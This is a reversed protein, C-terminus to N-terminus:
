PIVLGCSAMGGIGAVNPDDCWIEAQGTLLFQKWQDVTCISGLNEESYTFKGSENVNYLMHMGAGWSYNSDRPSVQVENGDKHVCFFLYNSGENNPSSDNLKHTTGGYQSSKTLSWDKHRDGYTGNTPTRTVTLFPYPSTGSPFPYSYLKIECAVGDLLIGSLAIFFLQYGPMVFSNRSVINKYSTVWPIPAQSLDNGVMGSATAALAVPRQRDPWFEFGQFFFVNTSPQGSNAVFLSQAYYCHTIFNMSEVTMTYMDAVDQFLLSSLSVTGTFNLNFNTSNAQSVLVTADKAIWGGNEWVLLQGETGTPLDLTQSSVVWKQTSSDWTLIKGTDSQNSSAKAVDAEVKKGVGWASGTWQLVQDTAGSTPLQAQKQSSSAVWKTGDWELVRGIETAKDVDAEIKKGVGWASGMWQLVQDTAGNTPLEAQKQSSSAVWKTGNWELVRGVETAKDVDAEVKKGGGWASGTWQLVQDTAGNTPLEAQQQSSVVWKETNSDWTLIKGTDSQNSTAKAVDAEVKKGVGWASGTWQLVQDAAGNTPLQAQKQSSSPVWKTGNWELVKGNDAQNAKAVDAEVKKGVAWAWGTWQLVQDATGNTPLQAQKQSSSAVWKTGNWELVKGNDAQGTTAKAVDAEIKKGVGWASGTWQLVQDTAGNTPLQAQKQSSSAVWKTGNWELVKGNDAQNATAKAVDAELKKGVVLSPSTGSVKLSLVKDDHTSDPYTSSDLTPFQNLVGAVTKTGFQEIESGVGMSGLMDTMSRLPQTLSFSIPDGVADMKTLLSAGTGGAASDVGLETEILALKSEINTIDNVVSNGYTHGATGGLLLPFTMSGVDGALPTTGNVDSAVSPRTTHTNFTAYSDADVPTSFDVNDVNYILLHYTQDRIGNEEQPTVTSWTKKIGSSVNPGISVIQLKNKVESIDTVLEARLGYFQSPYTVSGVRSSKDLSDRLEEANGQSSFLPFWGDRDFGGVSSTDSQYRSAAKDPAGIMKALSPQPVSTSSVSQLYTRERDKLESIEAKTRSVEATLNDGAPASPFAYSYAEFGNNDLTSSIDAGVSQRLKELKQETRLTKALISQGSPILGATQSNDTITSAPVGAPIEHRWLGASGGNAIRLGEGYVLDEISELKQTSDLISGETGQRRFSNQFTTNAILLMSREDLANQLDNTSATQGGGSAAGASQVQASVNGEELKSVVVQLIEADTATNGNAAAGSGTGSNTTTFSGGLAILSGTINVDGGELTESTTHKSAVTDIVADKVNARTATVDLLDASNRVRLSGFVVNKDRKGYFNPKIVSIDDKAGSRYM